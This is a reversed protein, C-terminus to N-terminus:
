WLYSPKGELRAVASSLFAKILPMNPYSVGEYITYILMRVSKKKKNEVASAGELFKFLASM